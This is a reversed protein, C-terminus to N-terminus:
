AGKARGWLRHRWLEYSSLASHEDTTIFEEDKKLEARFETPESRLSHPEVSLIAAVGAQPEDTDAFRDTHDTNKYDLQYQTTKNHGLRQWSKLTSRQLITM